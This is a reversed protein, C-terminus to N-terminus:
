GADSRFTEWGRVEVEQNGLRVVGSENTVQGIVRFEAPLTVDPAFTALLGHEEGGYLQWQSDPEFSEAFFAIGVNSATALRRADQALGDSVDIMAHAGAVAAARGAAIPPFARVHAKVLEPHLRRVQQALNRDPRGESDRAQDHLLKWGQISEGLNGAYAVNDGVHAGSRTVAEVGDLVGWASATLTLVPSSALDGGVVGTGPALVEIAEAIGRAIGVMHELTMAGPAALSIVLSTPTAGMAAVDALNSAVLKFGLDEPESWEAFFDRGEIMSDTTVVTMGARLDIVAADDGPGLVTHTGRPLLPVLARLVDAEDLEDLRTVARM